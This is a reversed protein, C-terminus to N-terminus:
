MENTVMDRETYISNKVLVFLNRLSKYMKTSQIKFKFQIKFQIKNFYICYCFDM